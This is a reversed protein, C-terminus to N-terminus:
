ANTLSQRAPTRAGIDRGHGRRGIGAREEVAGALERGILGRFQGALRQAGAVIAFQEQLEHGAFTEGEVVSPQFGGIVAAIRPEAQAADRALHGAKGMGVLYGGGGDRPRAFREAQEIGRLRRHGRGRGAGVTV